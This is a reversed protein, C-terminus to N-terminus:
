AALFPTGGERCSGANIFVLLSLHCYINVIYDLRVYLHSVGSIGQFFLVFFFQGRHSVLHSLNFM